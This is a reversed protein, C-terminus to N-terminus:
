REQLPLNIVITQALSALLSVQASVEVRLCCTGFMQRTRALTFPDPPYLHSPLSPGQAYAVMAAQFIADKSLSSMKLALAPPRHM